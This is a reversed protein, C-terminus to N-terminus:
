PFSLTTASASGVPSRATRSLLQSRTYAVATLPTQMVASRPM